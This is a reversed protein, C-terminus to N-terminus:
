DKKGDNVEAIGGAIQVSYFEALKKVAEFFDSAVIGHQFTGTITIHVTYKKPNKQKRKDAM